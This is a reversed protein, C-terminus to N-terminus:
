HMAAAEKRKYESPTMGTVKRFVRNFATKSNFGSDLAIGLLSFNDYEPNRIKTKVEEVRYGNIFDFFNQEYSENIIQSLYHSPIDVKEALQQITLDNILFPKEDEMFAELKERYALSQEEKLYSGAYKRKEEPEDSPAKIEQARVVSQKLGFYGTLIIFVTLSLFLGNTCFDPTFLFVAHHGIAFLILATWAIGFVVVLNHLWKIDLNETYSFQNLIRIGHRRLLNITWVFYVPGSFAIILLFVVYHWPLQLTAHVHDLRMNKAMEPFQFAVVLYLNFLVIPAFHWLQKPRLVYARKKILSATYFYLFPGHLLFLSFYSNTILPLRDFLGEAYFAYAGTFLGLYILWASLIQYHLARSNKQLILVVTFFAQFVGIFLITQM